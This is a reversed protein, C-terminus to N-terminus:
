KEPLDPSVPGHSWRFLGPHRGYGGIRLVEHFLNLGPLTLGFRLHWIWAKSSSPAHAAVGHSRGCHSGADIVGQM